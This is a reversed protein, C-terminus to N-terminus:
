FSGYFRIGDEAEGRRFVSSVCCSGGIGFSWVRVGVCDLKKGDANDRILLESENKIM